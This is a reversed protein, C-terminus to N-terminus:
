QFGVTAYMPPLVGLSAGLESPSVQVAELQFEAQRALLPPHLPIPVLVVRSLGSRRKSEIREELVCALIGQM